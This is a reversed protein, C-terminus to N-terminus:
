AVNEQSQAIFNNLLQQVQPLQLVEQYQTFLTWSQSRQLIEEKNRVEYADLIEPLYPGGTTLVNNLELSQQRKAEKDFPLTSGAEIDVDYRVERHKQSIEIASAMGTEGLVRVIRGVQYNQQITQSILLYVRSVFEDMLASALGIRGRSARDLTAIETATANKSPTKGSNAASVGSSTELGRERLQLLNFVDSSINPVTHYAVVNNPPQNNTYTVEDPGTKLKGKIAAANAVCRPHASALAHDEIMSAMDNMVDQDSKIPEVEDMGYWRHPIVMNIGIAIPWSAPRVEDDLPDLGWAMDELIVNGAKVTYRGFPYAPKEIEMTPADEDSHLKLTDAFVLQGAANEIVKGEEQLTEIPVPIKFKNVTYDRYWLSIVRSLKRDTESTSLSSSITASEGLEDDLLTDTTGVNFDTMDREFDAVLEDKKDPWRFKLYELSVTRKFGVYEGDEPNASELLPDIVLERPDLLRVNVDPEGPLSDDWFVHMAQFGFLKSNHLGRIFKQRMNLRRARFMALSEIDNTFAVDSEERSVFVGRPNNDTMIAIQQEITPFVRNVEAESRQRGKSKRKKRTTWQQGRYYRMSEIWREQLKSSQSTSEAVYRDIRAVLQLQEDSMDGVSVDTDLKITDVM